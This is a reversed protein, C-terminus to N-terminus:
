PALSVRGAGLPVSRLLFTIAGERIVLPELLLQMDHFGTVIPPDGAGALLRGAIQTFVFRLAGDEIEHASWVLVGDPCAAYEQTDVLEAMPDQAPELGVLLKEFAVRAPM